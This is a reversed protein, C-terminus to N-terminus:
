TQMQDDDNDDMNKHREQMQRKRMGGEVVESSAKTKRKLIIASQGSSRAKASIAKQKFTRDLLTISRLVALMKCEGSSLPVVMFSLEALMIDGVRFAQPGLKQLQHGGNGVPKREMYEVGYDKTRVFGKKTLNGLIGAPDVAPEFPVHREGPLVDVAPTFLRNATNIQPKDGKSLVWEM